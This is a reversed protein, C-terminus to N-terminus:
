RRGRIASRHVFIQIGGEDALVFGFGRDRAFRAGDASRRRERQM